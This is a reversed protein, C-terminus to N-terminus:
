SPESLVTTMGEEKSLLGTVEMASLAKEQDKTLFTTMGSETVWIPSAAKEQHSDRTLTSIGSVTLNIPSHAKIPQEERM